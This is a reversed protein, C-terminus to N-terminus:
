VPRNLVLMAPCAPRRRLDAAVLTAGGAAVSAVKTGVQGVRAQEAIVALDGGLHADNGGGVAMGDLKEITIRAVWDARAYGAPRYVVAPLPQLDVAPGRWHERPLPLM